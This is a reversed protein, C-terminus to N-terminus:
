RQEQEVKNRGSFTVWHGALSAFLQSNSARHTAPQNLVVIDM